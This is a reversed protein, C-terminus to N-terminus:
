RKSVIALSIFSAASINSFTFTYSFFYEAIYNQMCCGIIWFFSVISMGLFFALLVIKWKGNEM